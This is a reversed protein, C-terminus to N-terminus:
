SVQGASLEMEKEVVGAGNAAQPSAAKVRGTLKSVDRPSAHDLGFRSYKFDTAYPSSMLYDTPVGEIAGEAMTRWSAGLADGNFVSYVTGSVTMGPCNTDVRSGDSSRDNCEALQTHSCEGLCEYIPREQTVTDYESQYMCTCYMGAHQGACAM